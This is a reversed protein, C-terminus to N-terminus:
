KSGCVSVIQELFCFEFFLIFGKLIKPPAWVRLCLWDLLDLLDKSVRHGGTTKGDAEARRGFIM